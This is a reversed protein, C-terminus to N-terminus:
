KARTAKGSFSGWFSCRGDYYAGRGDLYLRGDFGASDLVPVRTVIKNDEGNLSFYPEREYAKSGVTLSKAVKRGRALAILGLNNGLYNDDKPNRSQDGQSVNAVSVAAVDGAYFIGNKEKVEKLQKRFGEVIGELFNQDNVGFQARLESSPNNVFYVRKGAVVVMLSNGTLVKDGDNISGIVTNFAPNFKGDEKHMYRDTLAGGALEIIQDITPRVLKTGDISNIGYDASMIKHWTNPGVRQLPLPFYGGVVSIANPSKSPITIFNAM